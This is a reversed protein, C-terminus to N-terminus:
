ANIEQGHRLEMDSAPVLEFLPGSEHPCVVFMDELTLVFFDETGSTQWYGTDFAHPHGAKDVSFRLHRGYAIDAEPNQEILGALTELADPEALDDDDFIWILDGTAHALGLNLAASKGSNPQRLYRVRNGMASLMAATEDSSGDDIVIIEQAPRSQSLLSSLAEALLGARNFTPVLISVSLLPM